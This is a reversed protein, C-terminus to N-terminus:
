VFFSHTQTDMSVAQSHVDAIVSAERGGAQDGETAHRTGGSNNNQEIMITFRNTTHKEWPSEPPSFAQKVHNIIFKGGSNTIAMITSVNIVGGGLDMILRTKLQKILRSAAAAGIGQM